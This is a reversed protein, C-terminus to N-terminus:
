FVPGDVLASRFGALQLMTSAIDGLGRVWNAHNESSKGELRHRFWIDYLSFGTVFSM